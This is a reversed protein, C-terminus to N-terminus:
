LGRCGGCGSQGGDGKGFVQLRRSECRCVGLGGDGGNRRWTLGCRSPFGLLDSDHIKKCVSLSSFRLWSWAASTTSQWSQSRRYRQRPVPGVDFFLSQRAAVCLSLRAVVVPSLRHHCCESCPSPSAPLSMSLPVRSGAPYGSRSQAVLPHSHLGSWHAM